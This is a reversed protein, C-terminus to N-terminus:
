LGSIECRSHGPIFTHMPSTSCQGSASPLSGSGDRVVITRSDFRGRELSKWSAELPLEQEETLREANWRTFPEVIQYPYLTQTNLKVMEEEPIEEGRSKKEQQEVVKNLFEKYRKEDNRMFAKRYRLM